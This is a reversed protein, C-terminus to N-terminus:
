MKHKLRGLRIKRTEGRYESCLLNNEYNPISKKEATNIREKEFIGHFSPQSDWVM